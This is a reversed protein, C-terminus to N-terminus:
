RLSPASASPVDEASFLRSSFAGDPVALVRRFCVAGLRPFSPDINDM